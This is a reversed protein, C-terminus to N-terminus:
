CASRIAPPPPPFLSFTPSDVSRYWCPQKLTAREAPPPPPHDSPPKRLVEAPHRPPPRAPDIGGAMGTRCGGQGQGTLSGFTDIKAAVPGIACLHRRPKPRWFAPPEPRHHWLSVIRCRSKGKRECAPRLNLQCIGQKRQRRFRQDKRSDTSWPRSALQRASQSLMVIRRSPSRDKRRRQCVGRALQRAVSGAPRFVASHGATIM